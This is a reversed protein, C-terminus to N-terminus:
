ISCQSNNKFSLTKQFILRLGLAWKFRLLEVFFQHYTLFHSCLSVLICNNLQFNPSDVLVKIKRVVLSVNFIQKMEVM